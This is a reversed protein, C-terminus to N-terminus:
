YERVVQVVLLTLNNELGCFIFRSLARGSGSCLLSHLLDGFAGSDMKGNAERHGERVTECRPKLLVVLYPMLLVSHM